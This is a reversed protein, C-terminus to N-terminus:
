DARPEARGRRQRLPRPQGRGPHGHLVPASGPAPRCDDQQAQCVAHNFFPQGRLRQEIRGAHPSAVAVNSGMVFLGRIGGDPGLSDLLEFASKGKRPLSAPDVQAPTKEGATKDDANSRTTTM